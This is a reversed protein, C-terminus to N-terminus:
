LQEVGNSASHKKCEGFRRSSSRYRVNPLPIVSLWRTGKSTIPSPTYDSTSAVWRADCCRRSSEPETHRQLAGVLLKMRSCLPSPIVSTDLAGGSPPIGSPHSVYLLLLPLEPLSYRAPMPTCERLNCRDRSLVPSTPDVARMGWGFIGPRFDLPLRFSFNGTQFYYWGSINVIM